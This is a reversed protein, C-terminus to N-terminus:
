GTSSLDETTLTTRFEPMPIPTFGLLADLFLFEFNMNVLRVTVTGVPSGRGDFALQLDSYEVVMNQGQIRPFVSQLRALMRDAEVQSFGYNGTCSSITCTVTGFNDGGQSCPEGATTNANGCDFTSLGPALPTSVAALRAGIQTAEEATNWQWFAYGMDIVGFTTVMLLVLVIAFEAMATGAENRIFNNPM